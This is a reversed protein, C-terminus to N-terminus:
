RWLINTILRFSKANDMGNEFLTYVRIHANGNLDSSIKKELDERFSVEFIGKIFATEHVPACLWWCTSSFWYWFTRRIARATSTAACVATWRLSSIGRINIPIVLTTIQSSMRHHCRCLCTILLTTSFVAIIKRSPAVYNPFSILYHLRSWKLGTLHKGTRCTLLAPQTM